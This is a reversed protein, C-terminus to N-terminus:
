SGYVADILPPWRPDILDAGAIMKNMTYGFGIGADPDVFGLSGGMGAHGFARPNPGMPFDPMTLFFGLRTPLRLVTEKPLGRLGAASPRPRNVCTQEIGISAGDQSRM